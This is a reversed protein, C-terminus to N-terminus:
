NTNQAIGFDEAASQKQLPQRKDSSPVLTPKGDTKTVLNEDVLGKYIDKDIVKEIQPVTLYKREYLMSEEVGNKKLYNHAKDFDTFVRSSRGAVVKWGPVEGGALCKVQARDKLKKVWAEIGEAKALIEGLQSDSVVGQLDLQMDEELQLYSYAKAECQDMAKCFQCHSGPEFTGLGSYALKARDMLWRAWTALNTMSMSWKSFNKTRPQIVHLVVTDFQMLNGYQKIIGLAYTKLQSNDDALVEKGKGYKLDIVHLVKDSGLVACDLTGFGEPAIHSYDVKHEILVEPPTTYSHVLEQVYDVYQDVYGIMEAQFLEHEKLKKLKSNFTRTALKKGFVQQMKLEAIEHALTGEAAYPSENEPLTDEWRASATCKSWRDAGSASLLAHAREKHAIAGM